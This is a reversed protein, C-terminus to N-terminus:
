LDALIDSLDPPLRFCCAKLDAIIKDIDTIIGQRHAMILIGLTGTISLGLDLAYSRAQADDLILMPDQTELALAIASSEGLDLTKEIIHTKASDHVPSVIIWDPLPEGYEAAIEPTILVTRCVLRLIELRKINTLAILCSTDSIIIKNATHPKYGCL